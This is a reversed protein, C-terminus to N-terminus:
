STSVCVPVRPESALVIVVSQAGSLQDDPGGGSLRDQRVEELLSGRDEAGGDAVLVELELRGSRALDPEQSAAEDVVRGVVDGEHGATEVVARSVDVLLERPRDGGRARRGARVARRGIGGERRGDPGVAVQEPLVVGPLVPLQQGGSPDVAGDRRRREVELVDRAVRGGSPDRGRAVRRAQRRRVEVVGESADVRDRRRRRGLQRREDAVFTGRGRGRVARRAALGAGHRGRVGRQRGPLVELVVPQRAENALFPELRGRGDDLPESEVVAGAVGVESGLPNGVRRGLGHGLVEGRRASEAASTQATPGTGGRRGPREPHAPVREAPRLLDDAGFHRAEDGDVAAVRRAIRVAVDQLRHLSM